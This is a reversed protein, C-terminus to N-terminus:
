LKLLGAVALANAYAPQHSNLPMRPFRAPHFYCHLHRSSGLRVPSHLFRHFLGTLSWHSFTIHTFQTDTRTKSTEPETTNTLLRSMDIALQKPTTGNRNTLRRDLFTMPNAYETAQPTISAQLKSRMCSPSGYPAISVIKPRSVPM